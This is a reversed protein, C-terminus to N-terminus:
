IRVRWTSDESGKGSSSLRRSLAGTSGSRNSVSLRTNSSGLADHSSFLEDGLHSRRRDTTRQALQTNEEGGGVSAMPVEASLKSCSRPDVTYTAEDSAARASCDGPQMARPPIVTTVKMKRSGTIM